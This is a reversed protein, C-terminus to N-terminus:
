VRGTGIGFMEESIEEPTSSLGMASMVERKGEITMVGGESVIGVIVAVVVATVVSDQLMVFRFDLDKVRGRMEVDGEEIWM